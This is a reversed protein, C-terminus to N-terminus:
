LYHPTLGRCCWGVINIYRTITLSMRWRWIRLIVPVAFLSVRSKLLIPILGRFLRQMIVWRFFPVTQVLITVCFNCGLLFIQVIWEKFTFPGCRKWIWPNLWLWDIFPGFQKRGWSTSPLCFDKGFIRSCHDIWPRSCWFFICSCVIQIVIFM